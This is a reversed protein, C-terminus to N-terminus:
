ELVLFKHEREPSLDGSWGFPQNKIKDDWILIYPARLEPSSKGKKLHKSISVYLNHFLAKQIKSNEQNM